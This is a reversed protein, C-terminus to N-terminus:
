FVDKVFGDHLEDNGEGFALCVADMQMERQDASIRRPGNRPRFLLRLSLM